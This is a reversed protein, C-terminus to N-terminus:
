EVRMVSVSQVWIPGLFTLGGTGLFSARITPVPVRFRVTVTVSTGPLKPTSGTNTPEVDIDLTNDAIRDLCAASSGGLMVTTSCIFQRVETDTATPDGVLFRAGDRSASTVTLWGFFVVTMGVLGFLLLTFIGIVLAFEVMTAGREPEHPTRLHAGSVRSRRPTSSFHQIPM